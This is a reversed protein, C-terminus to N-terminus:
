DNILKFEPMSSELMKIVREIITEVESIVVYERNTHQNYYGISLNMHPIDYARTLDAVDSYTGFNYEWGFSEVWIAIEKPLRGSYDIYDNNGRRDLEIFFDVNFPMQDHDQIFQKIGRGGIEEEFTLIIHPKNIIKNYINAIAYVGARDDAGLASKGNCHYTDDTQVINLKVNKAREVTDCHAVLCINSNGVWYAYKNNIFVEPKRNIDESMLKINEDATAVLYDYLSYKSM